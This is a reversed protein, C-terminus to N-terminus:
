RTDNASSDRDSSSSSASSRNNILNDDNDGHKLANDISLIDHKKDDLISFNIKRYSDPVQMVYRPM